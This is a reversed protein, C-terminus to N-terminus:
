RPAKARRATAPPSSTVPRLAYQKRVPRVAPPDRPVLVEVIVEPIFPQFAWSLAAERFQALVARTPNEDAPRGTAITVHPVRPLLRLLIVEQDSVAQEGGPLFVHGPDNSDAGYSNLGVEAAIAHFRGMGGRGVNYDAARAAPQGREDVRTHWSTLTSTALPGPRSRGQQFVFAQRTPARWTERRRAVVGAEALRREFQMLRTAFFPDTLELGNYVERAEPGFHTRLMRWEWEEYSEGSKPRPLGAVGVVHTGPLPTKPQYVPVDLYSLLGFRGPGRIGYRCRLESATPNRGAAEWTGCDPLSSRSAQAVSATSVMLSFAGGVLLGFRLMRVGIDASTTTYSPELSVLFRTRM